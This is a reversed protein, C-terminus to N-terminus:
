DLKWQTGFTGVGIGRAALWNREPGGSLLPNSHNLHILQVDCDVGALREATDSVLPHPIQRLDRETLEDTSFLTGDLLAVDM